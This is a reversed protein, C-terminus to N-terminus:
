DFEMRIWVPLIFCGGYSSVFLLVVVKYIHPAHRGRCCALIHNRVAFSRILTVAVYVM